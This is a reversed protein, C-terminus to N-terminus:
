PRFVLQSGKDPTTWISEINRVRLNVRKSHSLQWEYLSPLATKSKEREPGFCEEAV